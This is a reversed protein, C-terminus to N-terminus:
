PPHTLLALSDQDQKGIFFEMSKTVILCWSETKTLQAATAKLEIFFENIRSYADEMKKTHGHTTTITMQRQRGTHVLRGVSSLMLPRSTIAEHHKEPIALRLFLNWWNYILAIMRAMIQSTQLKDTVYGGWGWQNKTEDFSNECDARDRYHQMLTVLEDDLNTVLVSYEYLRMDECEDLFTLEQQGDKECGIGLLKNKRVQRRIVAVRRSQDWGSLRLTSEKIEWDDNFRTRQGLGHVKAILEKVRETRKLKFLYKQGMEELETMIPNYGECVPADM